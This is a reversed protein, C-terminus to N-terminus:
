SGGADTGRGADGAGAEACPGDYAVPAGAFGPFVPCAVNVLTGEDARRRTPRASIGAASDRCRGKAACGDARPYFCRSGSACDLDTECASAAADARQARRRTRQAARRRRAREPAGDTQTCAAVLGLALGLAAAM